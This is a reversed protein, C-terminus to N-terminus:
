NMHFLKKFKTETMIDKKTANGYLSMGVLANAFVERFIANCEDLTTQKSIKVLNKKLVVNGYYKYEYLKDLVDYIRPEKAAENYDFERKAKKLQEETFGSNAIRDLYQAVTTMVENINAKDCETVFMVVGNKDDFQSRFGGGYVLSKDLRLDKAIGESTDNMMDLVLNLQRKYKRDFYNHGVYFDIFLYCKDIDVHKIAYFPEFKAKDLFLPLSKFNKNSPLRSVLHREVLKKVKAFSMPSSVYVELNERVFYKKVFEKVDKSKISAVSDKNGLTEDLWIQQKSINYQNFENSKRKYKDNNRAIEQQVVGVEKKVAEQTFTSETIMMAVTSLYDAFEKTFMNGTFYISTKSTMANVNIFDFYKKTIAPKDMKDTGTFFMHETFHALGPIKDCRAGCNFWVDVVTTDTINNKVYRLKAGNILGCELYKM